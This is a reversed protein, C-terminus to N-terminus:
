LGDVEENYKRTLGYQTVVTEWMDGGVSPDRVTAIRMHIDGDQESNNVVFRTAGDKGSHVKIGSFAVSLAAATGQRRQLEGGVELPNFKDEERVLPHCSILVISKPRLAFILQRMGKKDYWEQPDPPIKETNSMKFADEDGHGFLVVTDFKDAVGAKRLRKVIAPLCGTDDIEAAFVDGSKVDYFGCATGNSDGSAGRLILTAPGGSETHGAELMNLTGELVEPSWDAFHLIGTLRNLKNANRQGIQCITSIYRSFYRSQYGKSQSFTSLAMQTSADLVIDPNVKPLRNRYYRGLLAARDIIGIGEPDTSDIIHCIALIDMVDENGTDIMKRLDEPFDKKKIDQTWRDPPFGYEALSECLKDFVFEDRVGDSVAGILENLISDDVGKMWEEPLQQKSFFLERVLEPYIEKKRSDQMLNIYEQVLGLSNMMLEPMHRYYKGSLNEVEESALVYLNDLVYEKDFKESNPNFREDEEALQRISSLLKEMGEYGDAVAEEVAQEGNKLVFGGGHIDFKWDEQVQKLRRLTEKDPNEYKKAGCDEFYDRRINGAFDAAGRKISSKIEQLGESLDSAASLALRAMCRGTRKLLGARKERIGDEVEPTHPETDGSESVFAMEGITVKTSATEGSVVYVAM